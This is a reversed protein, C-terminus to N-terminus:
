KNIKKKIPDFGHGGFPHCKSIRIISKYTGIIPGNNLISKIAYNSCTPNFRCVNRYFFPSFFRYINILYFLLKIFIKKLINM